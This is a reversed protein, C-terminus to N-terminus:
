PDYEVGDLTITGDGQVRVQFGEYLDLYTLSGTLSLDNDSYDPTGEPSNTRPEIVIGYYEIPLMISISEEPNNLYLYEVRDTYYVDCWRDEHADSTLAYIAIGAFESVGSPNTFSLDINNYNGSIGGGGTPIADIASAMQAPTFTQTTNTKSRIANAINTLYSETILAISM